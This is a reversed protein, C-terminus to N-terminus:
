PAIGEDWGPEANVFDRYQESEGQGEFTYTNGHVDPFRSTLEVMPCGTLARVMQDIVWMKHHGGDVTGSKAFELARAIRGAAEAALHPRVVRLVDDALARDADDPKGEVAALVQAAAELAADDHSTM